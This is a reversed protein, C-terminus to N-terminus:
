ITANKGFKVKVTDEHLLVLAHLVFSGSSGFVCRRWSTYPQHLNAPKVQIRTVVAELLGLM